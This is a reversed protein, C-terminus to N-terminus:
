NDGIDKMNHNSKTPKLRVLHSAPYLDMAGDISRNMEYLLLYSHTYVTTMMKSQKRRHNGQSIHLMSMLDRIENLKNWMRGSLTM